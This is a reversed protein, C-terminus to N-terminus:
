QVRLAIEKPSHEVQSGNDQNHYDKPYDNAYDGLEFYNPDNKLRIRLKKLGHSRSYDMMRQLVLLHELSVKAFRNLGGTEEDEFEQFTPLFIKALELYNQLTRVTVPPELLSAAKTRPLEVVPTITPHTDIVALHNRMTEHRKANNGHIM